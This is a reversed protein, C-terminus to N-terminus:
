NRGYHLPPCGGFDALGYFHSFFGVYVDPNAEVGGNIAIAQAHEQAKILGARYNAEESQRANTAATLPRGMLWGLVSACIAYIIAIWVLYGVVSFSVLGLGFTVTGSLTWLIETFSGLLLVSYFLSHGLEIADETAIRVDEAIRGDPNDHNDIDMFTIQYYRGKSMWKSVVKDTLWLRWGILLRRKVLLHTTTVLISGVFILVLMGIQAIIGSMSHQEIADFLDANWQTTAVAMIIQM